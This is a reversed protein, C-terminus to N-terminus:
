FNVEPPPYYKAGIMYPFGVEGSPRVWIVKAMTNNRPKSGSKEDAGDGNGALRVFVVAQSWFRRRSLFCVGDRGFNVLQGDSRRPSGIGFLSIEMNVCPDSPHNRMSQRSEPMSSAGEGGDRSSQVPERARVATEPGTSFPQAIASSASSKAPRSLRDERTM